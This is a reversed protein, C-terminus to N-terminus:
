YIQQYLMLIKMFITRVQKLKPTNYFHGMSATKYITILNQGDGWFDTSSVTVRSLM